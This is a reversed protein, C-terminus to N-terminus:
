PPTELATELAEWALLVCRSRGPYDKVPALAPLPEPLEPPVQGAGAGDLAFWQRMREALTQADAVARGDVAETMMSGSAICIACGRAHFRVEDIADGVVSVGIELDDGCLPNHVRASRQGALPAGQHRPNRYHDMMVDRYLRAGDSM